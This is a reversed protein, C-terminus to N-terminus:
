NDHLRKIFATLIITYQVIVFPAIALIMSVTFLISINYRYKIFHYFIVGLVVVLGFIGSLSNMLILEKRGIRGKYNFISKDM